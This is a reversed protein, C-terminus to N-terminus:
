RECKGSLNIMAQRDILRGSTSNQTNGRHGQLSHVHENNGSLHNHNQLFVINRPDGKWKDGLVGNGEVSNIHHGTYGAKSMVSTLKSNSTSQILNKEELTWDRTGMGTKEILEKELAWARNIASSRSGTMASLDDRPKYRVLDGSM